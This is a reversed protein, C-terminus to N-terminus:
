SITRYSRIQYFRNETEWPIRFAPSAYFTILQSPSMEAHM